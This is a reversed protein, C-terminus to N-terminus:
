AIMSRSIESHVIYRSFGDLVSIPYTHENNVPIYTIDIHWMQNPANVEIKGDAKRESPQEQECILGEEKLVRHVSSPSVYYQGQNQMM